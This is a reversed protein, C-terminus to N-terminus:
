IKRENNIKNIVNNLESIDKIRYGKFNKFVNKGDETERLVFTIKNNVAAEYDAYADGIFICNISNINEENLIKNVWYGKKQPSGCAKDFFDYMNRKKLIPIIEKTPTGTIIYKKYEGSKELFETTGKVEQSNVVGNVVLDSFRSAYKEILEKTVEQKLWDGNYIKIKEYRSVGGNLKHHEVVKNAFMVGYDMYLERFAQTKVDVSEALVGDFDFFIYKIKLKESDM